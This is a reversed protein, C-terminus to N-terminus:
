MRIGKALDCLTFGAKSKTGVLAHKIMCSNVASFFIIQLQIWIGFGNWM